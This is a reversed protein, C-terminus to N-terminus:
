RKFTVSNRWLGFGRNNEGPRLIHGQWNTELVIYLKVLISKDNIKLFVFTHVVSTVAKGSLIGTDTQLVSPKLRM